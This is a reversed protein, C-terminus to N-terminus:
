AGSKLEEWDEFRRESIDGKARRYSEMFEKDNMLEVGEILSDLREKAEMIEEFVKRSMYIRDREAVEAM